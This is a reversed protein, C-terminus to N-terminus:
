KGMYFDIFEEKSLMLVFGERAKRPQVKVFWEWIEDMTPTDVDFLNAIEIIIKIGYPFDSAFYRSDFDPM